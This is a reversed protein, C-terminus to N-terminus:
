LRLCPLPCLPFCPCLPYPCPIALHQDSALFALLMLQGQEHREPGLHPVLELLLRIQAAKRKKSGRGFAVLLHNARQELRPGLGVLAPPLVRPRSEEDRGLVIERADRSCRGKVHGAVLVLRIHELEQQPSTIKSEFNTCRNAVFAGVCYCYDTYHPPPPATCDCTQETVKM